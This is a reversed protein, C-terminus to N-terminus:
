IHKFGSKQLLSKLNSNGGLNDVTQTTYSYRHGVPEPAIIGKSRNQAAHVSDSPKFSFDALTAFHSLTELTTRLLPVSKADCGVANGSEDVSNPQGLGDFLVNSKASLNSKHKDPPPTALSTLHYKRVAPQQETPVCDYHQQGLVFSHNVEVGQYRDLISQRMEEFAASDKVKSDVRAKFNSHQVTQTNKIFDNFPVFKAEGSQAFSSTAFITCGTVLTLLIARIGRSALTPGNVENRAAPGSIASVSPHQLSVSLKSHHVNFISM